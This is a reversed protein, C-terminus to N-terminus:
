YIGLEQEGEGEEGQLRQLIHPSAERMMSKERKGKGGDRAWETSEQEGRGFRWLTSRNVPDSVKGHEEM